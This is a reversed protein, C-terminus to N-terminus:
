LSVVSEGTLYIGYARVNCTISGANAVAGDTKIRAVSYNARINTTM